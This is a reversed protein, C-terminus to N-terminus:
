NQYRGGIRKHQSKNNDHCGMRIGRRPWNRLGMDREEMCMYEQIVEEEIGHCFIGSIKGIEWLVTPEAGNGQECLRSNCNYIDGDSISASIKGEHQHKSLASRAQKEHLRVSRRRQPLSSDGLDTLGKKKRQRIPPSWLGTIRESHGRLYNGGEISVGKGNRQYEDKETSGYEGNKDLQVGKMSRTTGEWNEETQSNCDNVRVLAEETEGQMGCAYGEKGENKGCCERDPRPGGEFTPLSQDRGTETQAELNGVQGLGNIKFALSSVEIDVVVKALDAHIHSSNYTETCAIATLLGVEAGEMQTRRECVEKMFFSCSKGQEDIYKANSEKFFQEKYSTGLIGRSKAEREDGEKWSRICEGEWQRLEDEGSKVSLSSEEVYTESSSENVTSEYSNCKCIGRGDTVVEEEMVISCWMDNLRMSKAWRLSHSLSTHVQFRAFEVNEWSLTADDVFVLKVEKGVVKTFGDMNWLALPLGYCRVWVRKHDVVFAPTWPKISVFVSDVWQQNDSYFMEFVMGEKLTLLAFNDGLFRVQMLNIGGKIFEEDVQDYSLEEKFQGISSRVM